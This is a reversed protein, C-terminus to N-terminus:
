VKRIFPLFTPRRGVGFGYTFRRWLRELPGTPHSKLWWASFVVQLVGLALALGAGRTPTITGFLGFALCLPVVVGAQLLYNTFAMRGVARLPALLAAAARLRSLLFVAAAYAAALTWTSLEHLGQVAAGQLLGGAGDVRRAAMADFAVRALVAAPLAVALVRLAPTASVAAREVFGARGLLLGAIMLALVSPWSLLPNTAYWYALWAINEALFGQGTSDPRGPWGRGLAPVGAQVVYPVLLLAVATTVLFATSRRALVLLLLGLLAYPALIDGNRLFAAHLIGVVFLFGMRRLHVPAPDRGVAEARRRQHAVGIGFLFAFITLFKGDVFLDMGRAVARDVVSWTEAPPSGLSWVTYALLM